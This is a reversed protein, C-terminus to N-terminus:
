GAALNFAFEAGWANLETINWSRLKMPFHEHWPRPECVGLEPIFTDAPLGLERADRAFDSIAIHPKLHFGVRLLGKQKALRLVLDHHNYGISLYVSGDDGRAIETMGITELYHDKTRDIDPAELAVYGLQFV